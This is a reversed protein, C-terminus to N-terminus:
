RAAVTRWAFGGRQKQDDQITTVVALRGDRLFAIPVYEGATDRNRRAGPKEHFRWSDPWFPPAQVMRPPAGDDPVDIRAVHVQIQEGRGSFWTAALEGKARAVLYPFYRMEGGEAIRWTTWNGGRDTSRALWLGTPDAWLSYLVGSADWALPEVWRPYTWARQGPAPRKTWTAGGDTSIAILDVGAHNIKGSASLPSIRVAIEGGPGVALHSSGGQAHIRSPSTSTLTASPEM